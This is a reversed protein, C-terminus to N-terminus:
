ARVARIFSRIFVRAFRSDDEVIAMELNLAAQIKVAGQIVPLVVRKSVFIVIAIAVQYLQKKSGRVRDGFHLDIAGVAELSHM